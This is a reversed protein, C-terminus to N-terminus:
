SGKKPKPPSVRPPLSKLYDAMAARDADTLQSTNRIVAAMSGGVSDYEPTFGTKLLDAIEGKSWAGLGSADPTVNPVFGGQGEPDPGGAFRSGAPINGAFTRPSHCEVCHGPGEILYAGRNLEASKTADAKFTQGDLFALKWLGLSRRVNFPFPLAHDRVRGEVPPLTKIHAFLDALDDPTMRQYSTYPFSPYYHSGDPSVGERMARIFDAQSWSGIGDRPHPSINPVYFTGFPSHLGLGGGLKTKDDQGTGAHCSACGGAYFMTRGNETSRVARPALNGDGRLTAWTAPATLLWFGALGLAALVAAAVVFKKM